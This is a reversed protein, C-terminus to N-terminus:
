AEHIMEELSDHPILARLELNDKELINIWKQRLRSYKDFSKGSYYNLFVIAITWIFFIRISVGMAYWWINLGIIILGALLGLENIYKNM